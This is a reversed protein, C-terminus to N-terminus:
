KQIKKTHLRMENPSCGVYNRFARSFNSVDTYGLQTAIDGISDIGLLVLEQAKLICQQQVFDGLAINCQKRFNGKLSSANISFKKALNDLSCEHIHPYEIIHHKVALIIKENKSARVNDLYEILTIDEDYASLLRYIHAKMELYLSHGTKNSQYMEYLINKVKGNIRAPFLVGGNNNAQHLHQQMMENLLDHAYLLDKLYAPCVEILLSQSIGPSPHLVYVDADLYFLNYHSTKLLLKDQNNLQCLIEGEKTYQLAVTPKECHAYLAVPKSIDLITVYINYDTTLLEQTIIYGFDYKKCMAVSWPALRDKLMKPTPVVTGTDPVQGPHNSIRIRM